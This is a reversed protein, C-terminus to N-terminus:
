RSICECRSKFRATLSWPPLTPWSCSRLRASQKLIAKACGVSEDAYLLDGGADGVPCFFCCRTYSGTYMQLTRVAWM